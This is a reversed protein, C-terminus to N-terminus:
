IKTCEGKEARWVRGTRDESEKGVEGREWKVEHREKEL